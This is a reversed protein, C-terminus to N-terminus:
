SDPVEEIGRIGWIDDDWIVDGFLMNYAEGMFEVDWFPMWFSGWSMQEDVAGSLWPWWNEQDWGFLSSSEATVESRMSSTPSPDDCESEEGAVVAMVGGEEEKNVARKKAAAASDEFKVHVKSSSNNCEM